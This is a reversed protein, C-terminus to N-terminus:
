ETPGAPSMAAPDGSASPLPWRASRRPFGAVAYADRLASVLTGAALATLVLRYALPADVPEFRLGILTYGGVTAADAGSFPVLGLEGVLTQEVREVRDVM